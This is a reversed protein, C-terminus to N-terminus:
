ALAHQLADALDSASKLFGALLMVEVIYAINYARATSAEAQELLVRRRRDLWHIRPLLDPNSGVAARMSDAM